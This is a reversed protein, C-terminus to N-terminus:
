IARRVIKIYKRQDPWTLLKLAQQYSCWRYGDHEKKSLRVKGKEVKASFLVYRFGKVRLEAQTKKDYIFSGKVPFRKIHIPRLGTEEMLERKVTNEPRERALSGGKPFEWGKWHLKIHLLLYRIPHGSYAICFIGKRYKKYM